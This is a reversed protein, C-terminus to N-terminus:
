KGLRFNMSQFTAGTTHPTDENETDSKKATLRAANAIKQASRKKTSTLSFKTLEHLLM